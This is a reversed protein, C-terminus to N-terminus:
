ALPLLDPGSAIFELSHGLHISVVNGGLERELFHRVNKMETTDGNGLSAMITSGLVKGIKGSGVMEKMKRIVPSFSGQLGVITKSGHTKSLSLMERAIHLNRDLPWEVFVAKGALLSPRVALFHKDVRVSCVLLDVGPDKALEEPKSYAKTSIPLTYREIAAKASEVSSNLLAVIEYDPSSTLYPLHASPTWSTEECKDPPAGSLGILGVRIASM